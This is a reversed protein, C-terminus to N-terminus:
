EAFIEFQIPSGINVNMEIDNWLIIEIFFGIMVSKLRVFTIIDRYIHESIVQNCCQILLLVFQWNLRFHSSIYLTNLKHGFIKSNDITGGSPPLPDSLVLM